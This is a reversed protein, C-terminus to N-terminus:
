LQVHHVVKVTCIILKIMAMCVSTAIMHPTLYLHFLEMTGITFGTSQTDMLLKELMPLKLAVFFTLMLILLLDLHM